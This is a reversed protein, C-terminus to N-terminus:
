ALAIASAAGSVGWPCVQPMWCGGVNPSSHEKVHSSPHQVTNGVLLTGGTRGLDVFGIAVHTSGLSLVEKRSPANVFSQWGGGYPPFEKRFSCSRPPPHLPLFARPMHTNLPCSSLFTHM